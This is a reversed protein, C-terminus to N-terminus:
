KKAEGAAPKVTVHMRIKSYEAKTVLKKGVLDARGKLPRAAIIKDAIADTIGDVKMLEERTAGNLDVKPEAKMAAHKSTEGGSKAAKAAPASAADGGQAHAVLPLALAAALLFTIGIRTKM